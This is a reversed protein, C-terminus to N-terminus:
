NLQLLEAHIHAVQPVLDMVADNNIIYQALKVKEAEPLQAAMRARVQEETSGDRAMVRKIRDELPATVVILKDLQRYSGTEVLLAAEKLTYPYNKRALVQNWSDNDRQVVPHVLSNLLLLKKEDSFVIKALDARQLAGALYMTEGFHEKIQSVLQDDDEMLQKARVDAYYVPVGMREFIQCATTKGSGIGGTIGVKLM